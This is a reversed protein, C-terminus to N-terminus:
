EVYQSHDVVDESVRVTEEKVTLVLKTKQSFYEYQGEENQFQITQLEGDNDSTNSYEADVTSVVFPIKFAILEKAETSSNLPSNTMRNDPSESKMIALKLQYPLEFTTSYYQNARLISEITGSDEKVWSVDSTNKEAYEEEIQTAFSDFLSPFTNVISRTLHEERLEPLSAKLTEKLIQEIMRADNINKPSLTWELTIPDRIQVKSFTQTINPAGSYGFGQSVSQAFASTGTLQRELLTKVGPIYKAIDFIDNIVSSSNKDKFKELEASTSGLFDGAKNGLHGIISDMNRKAFEGAIGLDETNYVMRQQQQMFDKGPLPLYITIIPGRAKENESAIRSYFRMRMFVNPFLAPNTPYFLNLNKFPGKKKRQKPKTSTAFKGLSLTSNDTSTNNDSSISEKTQLIEKKAKEAEAKKERAITEKVLKKLEPDDDLQLAEVEAGDTAIPPPPPSLYDSIINM